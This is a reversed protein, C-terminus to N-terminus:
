QPNLERQCEEALMANNSLWVCSSCPANLRAKLPCCAWSFCYGFFERMCCCTSDAPCSTATDCVEPKPAPPSPPTPPSPRARPAPQAQEQHPVLGTCM